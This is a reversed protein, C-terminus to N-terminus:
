EENNEGKWQAKLAERENTFDTPDEYRLYGDCRDLTRKIRDVLDPIEQFQRFQLFGEIMELDEYADEILFRAQTVNNM